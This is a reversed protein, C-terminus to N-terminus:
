KNKQCKLRVDLPSCDSNSSNNNKFYELWKTANNDNELTQIRYRLEQNENSSIFIFVILVIGVLIILPLPPHKKKKM